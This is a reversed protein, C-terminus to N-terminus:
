FDPDNPVAEAAHEGLAQQLIMRFQDIADDRQTRGKVRQDFGMRRYHANPILQFCHATLQDSSIEAGGTASTM